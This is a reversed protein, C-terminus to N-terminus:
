EYSLAETINTKAARRAPYLGALAALAASLMLAWLVAGYPVFYEAGRGYSARLFGELSMWGLVMGAVAGLLGGALGMLVSELVVVRSVQSRLMGISRLIGIERTRELVSALLTVIIGMCAISLTIVNLMYDFIFTQDLVKKIESKFERSPLVFLKRGAGVRKQIADRVAAVDRGPKVRVSFTDALRDKWYRLFPGRDMYVAGTDSHYDVVVAAVGFRVPGEPTPLWVHDGPKVKFRAAFPESVAINDRRPLLRLMDQRTGQAIMFPSYSLRREMDLVGLLIRMGEYDMWVKRFPDASLVGETAEIERGFSAPMAVTRANTSSVPHGSSVLIDARVVADLWNMLSQKTSHMFGATSVFIAIGYFVAAAAVANRAINKRLNLGALRGAPGLRPSLWRHFATLFGKLFVPTALSLGLLLLLESSFMLVTNQHFVPVAPLSYLGFLAMAWLVCLASAINLRRGTFFGEESYPVSRIASIPSIRSSALAPFLAAVLSAVVGCAIGIAPYHWTLSIEAVETRAYMQSVVQGFAGV